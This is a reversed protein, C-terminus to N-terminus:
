DGEGDATLLGAPLMPAVDVIRVRAGPGATFAAVSVSVDGFQETFLRQMGPSRDLAWSVRSRSTELFRGPETGLVLLEPRRGSADAALRVYDKFLARKQVDDRGAWAALKFEAVRLNTEVDFPRRPDNGVALSPRNVLTEGDELLAPLLHLIAAANILDSLRGFERRVKIASALLQADVGAAQATARVELATAHEVNAELSAISEPLPRRVLFASLTEVSRSLSLERM